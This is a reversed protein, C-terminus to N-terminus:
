ESTRLHKKDQSSKKSLLSQFFNTFDLDGGIESHCHNCSVSRYTADYGLKNANEAEEMAIIDDQNVLYTKCFSDQTNRKVFVNFERQAMGKIEIISADWAVCIMNAHSQAAWANKQIKLMDGITLQGRKIASFSGGSLTKTSEIKIGVPLEVLFSGDEDEELFIEDLFGDIVLQDWDENIETYREIGVTSCVSCYFFEPFILKEVNNMVKMTERAIKWSDAVLIEYYDKESLLYEDGGENSLKKVSGKILNLLRAAGTKDVGDLVALTGGKISEIEAFRYWQGERKLGCYLRAKM